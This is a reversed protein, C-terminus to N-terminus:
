RVDLIYILKRGPDWNVTRGNKPIEIMNRSITNSAYDFRGAGHEQKIGSTARYRLRAGDRIRDRATVFGPQEDNLQYPGTGETMSFMLLGTTQTYHGSGYAKTSFGAM